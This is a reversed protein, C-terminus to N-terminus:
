SSFSFSGMSSGPRHDHHRSDQRDESRLHFTLAVPTAMQLAQRFARNDTFTRERVLRGCITTSFHTERFPWPDLTVSWEDCPILHMDVTANGVPVSPLTQEAPPGCCFILSLFDWMQILRLNRTIYDLGAVDQYVPHAQLGTIVRDQIDRQEYIFAQIRAKEEPTDGSSDSLRRRYLDTGHLSTLLGAYRNDEMMRAVSRRWISLHDSLRMETFNAPLGKANVAPAEEWEDWGNDHDRATAVMVDEPSLAAFRENGWRVAFEGSLATHELQSILMWGDTHPRRIM